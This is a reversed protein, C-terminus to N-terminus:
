QGLIALIEDLQDMSFLSNRSTFRLAGPDNERPSEVAVIHREGTFVTDAFFIIDTGVTRSGGHEEIIRRGPEFDEANREGKLVELVTVFYIDTSRWDSLAEENLRQPENIEVILVYPSGLIIDEIADSRIFDQAPPNDETIDEVFSTISQRSLSRSNFNITDAHISLPENYMTSVSPNDLNIVLNHIFIFGDDHTNRTAGQLRNLPLLYNTGQHFSLQGQHYNSASIGGIISADRNAAYVFITDAANGLVRDQVLFEFETLNRGFPRSEVYTAIVVDTSQLLAEEFTLYMVSVHIEQREDEVDSQDDYEFDSTAEIMNGCAALAFLLLITMLSLLTKKMM